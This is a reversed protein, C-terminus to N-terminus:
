FYRPTVVKKKNFSFDYGLHIEHTGNNYNNLETLTYDYSYGIRLQPTIQFTALGAFSDETRYSVGLWFVDKLLAHLTIDAILPAGSVAKVMVSPKLKVSESVPFVYGSMFYYHWNKLDLKNTVAASGDGAVKNLFMRPIAIGAYFKDTNYYMGYGANPLVVKPTNFLFENDNEENTIVESLDEQHNIFGGQVGMAFAGKTGVQIRYAYSAYVAFQKTVGISENMMTLGLGLKKNMLPGNISATQTKPAGELGVWQNRYLMTAAVQERSGAYAPNIFMENFMYQTFQPEFQAQASLSGLLIAAAAFGKKIMSNMVLVKRKSIQKM